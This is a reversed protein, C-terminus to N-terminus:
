PANQLEQLRRVFGPRLRVLREDGVLQDPRARQEVPDLGPRQGVFLALRHDDVLPAVQHDGGGAAALSGDEHRLRSPEDPPSVPLRGFEQQEGECPVGPVLHRLANTRAEPRIGRLAYRDPGEVAEAHRDDALGFALTRRQGPRCFAVPRQKIHELADDGFQQGVAGQRFLDQFPELVPERGVAARVLELAPAGVPVVDPAVLDPGQLAVLDLAVLFALDRVEEIEVADGVFVFCGVFMLGRRRLLALVLGVEMEGVVADVDLM